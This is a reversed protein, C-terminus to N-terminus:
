GTFWAAVAIGEACLADIDLVGDDLVGSAPAIL